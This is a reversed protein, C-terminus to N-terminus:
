TRPRCRCVWRVCRRNLKWSPVHSHLFFPLFYVCVAGTSTKTLTLPRVIRVERTQQKIEAKERADGASRFRRTRQQNMKARPAVGDIAMFLVKRPRVAAFIRDVYQTVNYYMEEETEQLRGFFPPSVQDANNNPHLLLPNRVPPPRDEPHSCPHILGNMDVYLNDWELDNPNPETLDFPVQPPPPSTHSPALAHPCM